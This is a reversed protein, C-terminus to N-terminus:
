TRLGSPNLTALRLELACARCFVRSRWGLGNEPKLSVRAYQEGPRVELEHSGPTQRLYDEGFCRYARSATMVKVTVGQFRKQRQWRKVRYIPAPPDDRWVTDPKGPASPAIHAGSHHADLVCRRDGLEARCRRPDTGIVDGTM